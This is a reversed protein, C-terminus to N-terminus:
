QIRVKVEFHKVAKARGEWPRLYDLSLRSLGPAKAKLRWVRLVPGGVRPLDALHRTEAGMVQFRKNDFRNFEWTYGTGGQEDLSLEFVEGTKVQIEKGNDPMQVVRGAAVTLGAAFLLVLPGCIALARRKM